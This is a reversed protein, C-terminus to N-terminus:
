RPPNAGPPVLWLQTKPEPNGSRIVFTWQRLDQGRTTAYSSVRYKRANCIATTKGFVLVYMRANPYNNFIMITNDLRAKESNSVIQGYEDLMKSEDRSLDLLIENELNELKAVTADPQGYVSAAGLLCACLLLTKQLKLKFPNM